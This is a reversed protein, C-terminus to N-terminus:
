SVDELHALAAELNVIDRNLIAFYAIDDAETLETSAKQMWKTHLTIGAKILRKTISSGTDWGEQLIADMLGDELTTDVIEDEVQKENEEILDQVTNINEFTM